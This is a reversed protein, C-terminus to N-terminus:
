RKDSTDLLLRARAFRAVTAVIGAGGAIHDLMESVQKSTLTDSEIRLKSRAAAVVEEAKANGVSPVFLEVMRAVTMSPLGSRFQGSVSMAERPARALAIRGAVGVVGDVQAVSELVRMADDHSLGKRPLALKVLTSEVIRDAREYGLATALSNALDASDYLKDSGSM